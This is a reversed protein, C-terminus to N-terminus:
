WPFGTHFSKEVAEQGLLKQNSNEAHTLSPIFASPIFPPANQNLTTPSPQRNDLKVPSPASNNQCSTEPQMIIDVPVNTRTTDPNENNKPIHNEKSEVDSDDCKFQRMVKNTECALVEFQENINEIEEIIKLCNHEDNMECYFTALTDIIEICNTHSNEFKEYAENIKPIAETKSKSIALM